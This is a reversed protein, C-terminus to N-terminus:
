LDKFTGRPIELTRAGFVESLMEAKDLGIVQVIPDDIPMRRHVYLVTGGYVESLRVAAAPGIVEALRRLGTPWSRLDGTVM